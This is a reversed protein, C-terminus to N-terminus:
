YLPKAFVAFNDLPLADDADNAGIGAVLLPLALVCLKKHCSNYTNINWALFPDIYGKAINIANPRYVRFLDKRLSLDIRRDTGLIQVLLLKRLDDMRNLISLVHNLAIEPPLNAHIQFAKLTDLAISTDSM